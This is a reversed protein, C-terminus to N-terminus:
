NKGYPYSYAGVEFDVVGNYNMKSVISPYYKMKDAFTSITAIVQNGDNMYLKIKGPDAKTPEAHIESVSKKLKSSLKDYQTTMEKLREKNKFNYFVPYNGKPEDVGYKDIMGSSTLKYYKNDKVVYGVTPYEQIDIVVNSGNYHITAKKVSPVERHIRDEIKSTQPWVGVLSEYYHLDSAKVVALQTERDSTNVKVSLIRSFPLIFFLSSVFLVGFVVILAITGKALRKKRLKNTQPLKKVFSRSDNKSSHHKKQQQRKKQAKEWPTLEEKSRKPKKFSKQM